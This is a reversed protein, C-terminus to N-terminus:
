GGFISSFIAKLLASLWGGKINKPKRDVPREMKSIIMRRLEDGVAKASGPAKMGPLWTIDWKNRQKIGLTGQVEAHSLVTTPSVPIGYTQCLDVCLAAMGDLQAPTIPASGPNFPREKAGAMADIAVGISGTNCNRTHAAYNGDSVNLNAEPKYKGPVVRGDRDIIFHYHERELDIVGYAGATWHLIIRKM